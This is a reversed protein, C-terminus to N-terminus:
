GVLTTAVCSHTHYHGRCIIVCCMGVKTFPSTLSIVFLLTSNLLLFPSLIFSSL